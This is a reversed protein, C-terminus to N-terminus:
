GLKDLTYVGLVHKIKYGVCRMKLGIFWIDRTIFISSESSDIDCTQM